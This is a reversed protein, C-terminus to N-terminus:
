TLFVVLPLYATFLFLRKGIILRLLSAALIGLDPSNAMSSDLRGYAVELWWMVRWLRRGVGYMFENWNSGRMFKEGACGSSM